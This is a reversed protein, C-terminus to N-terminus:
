MPEPHRHALCRRQRALALGRSALVSERVWRSGCFLANPRLRSTRPFRLPRWVRKRADGLAPGHPRRMYVPLNDSFVTAMGAILDTIRSNESWGTLHPVSIRGDADVGPHLQVLGMAGSPAVFCRPPVGPYLSGFSMGVPVHYVGGQYHIRLVGSLYFEAETGGTGGIMKAGSALAPAVELIREVDARLRLKNECSWPLANIVEDIHGMASRECPRAM